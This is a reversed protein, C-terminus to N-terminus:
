WLLPQPTTISLLVELLLYLVGTLVAAYTGALLWSRGAEWRLYCFAFVASAVFLGGAVLLLLFLAVWALARSWATRGATAYVYEVDHDDDGDHQDGDQQDGHPAPGATPSPQAPRASRERVAAVLQLLVFAGSLVLGTMTVLRPFLATRFSWELTPAFAAAFVLALAVGILLDARSARRAGRHPRTATM